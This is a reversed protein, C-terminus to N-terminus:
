KKRQSNRCGVQYTLLVMLATTLAATECSESLVPLPSESTIATYDAAIPISKMQM